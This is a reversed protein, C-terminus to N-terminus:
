VGVLAALVVLEPGRQGPAPEAEGARATTEAATAKRRAPGAGSTGAAEVEVDGVDEAVAARAATQAIEEVPEDVAAATGTAGATRPTRRPRAPAGVHFGLDREVEALGGLAHGNRQLQGIRRRAGRAVTRARLRASVRHRAAGAMTRAEGVLLAPGEPEGGGARIATALARLDLIRAGIAGAGAHGRTAAGDR